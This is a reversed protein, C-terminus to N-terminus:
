PPPGASTSCTSTSISRSIQLDVGETGSSLPVSHSCPPFQRGCGVWTGEPIMTAQALLPRLELVPLPRHLHEPSLRRLSARLVPLRRRPGHFRHDFASVPGILDAGVIERFVPHGMVPDTRHQMLDGLDDIAPKSSSHFLRLHGVPGFFEPRTRFTKVSGEREARDMSQVLTAM